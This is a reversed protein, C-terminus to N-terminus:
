DGQSAERHELGQQWLGLGGVSCAGSRALSELGQLLRSSSEERGKERQNGSLLRSLPGWNIRLEESVHLPMQFIQSRFGTKGPAWAAWPDWFQSKQATWNDTTGSLQVRVSATRHPSCFTCKGLGWFLIRLSRVTWHGSLQETPDEACDSKRCGVGVLPGPVSCVHSWM